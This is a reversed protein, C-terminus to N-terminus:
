FEDGFNFDDKVTATKGRVKFSVSGILDAGDFVDATYPNTKARKIDKLWFTYHTGDESKGLYLKDEMVLSINDASEVDSIYLDLTVGNHRNAIINEPHIVTIQVGVQKKLTLTIVPVVIEELSAGGHVEVNAPRSGRFRGYDSLIIFGNDEVKYPVDCGEFAKCCRGSHEGKTDTEYPVEQKKIVALRSAGHDSAIVFSKCNHLGLEMAARNLANEIVKLEAPIHIPDEDDTFFYGGKDKHKINDLQEEKYKKGGTWQEYFQKNISTITPLDSRVIDIHISLGRKKALATIYSLYEVGLADIWYLYASNKDAIAKIANDRTPLQAYSIGSAYKEVLIAFDDSIRNSVKQRKYSDFYETLESALVPCNFIYKKLYADLAPYVYSIAESFGNRTIWKVTAKKELLTNDTLRYISEKTDSENAKVFIAIDEEPFGKLLKKREDYLQRFRQDNHSIETIKVILNTKFDEFNLTENVVLKLYSNQIQEANLKFYLFVLWNQYEMGSVALYLDDAIREEIGNKDFVSRINKSCKSLDKLLHQWQEETGLKGDLTFSEVLLKVVSYAGSHTRVPFLASDLVLTTSAYVNGIAGDELARLLHKVGTEAVLGVDSPINTISINTLPNVSIYARQQDLMKNDNRIIRTAQESVGRLLLIARANGLTTNKLRHLEKDAIASGRLALYEGLGVVVFKNDRYDVDSTRFFDVLEDVSPFKDEKFCLDSMRVISIDAQKLEELVLGYDEDGVVYFFPLGKATSIYNQVERCLM